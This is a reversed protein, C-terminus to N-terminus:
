GLDRYFATIDEALLDPEEHAAFHGGRPMPTYRTLHYSREAWERPPRVLDGPFVALATPVEVREVASRMGHAYEYYPRFSTSITETFWYLSTWTLVEEDSFRRSLIGDNDSWARWKEVLWALLGSPSDALPQALTLPRTMQQHEYGGETTFWVGESERFAREATTLTAEDLSPPGAVALLHVGVVAEPHTQGLLSSVGAGLDGGHAGYRAFGLRETMLQHWLEHTPLDPPVSPRQPSFPFGPLAPVIVTFADQARGGHASPAALRRAVPVLELVTSPWGHTLVLPLADGTHDGEADFRLYGVATGALDARHWPLANIAAEAARWDYSNVWVGVLRRLEAPDAGAEWATGSGLEPWSTAWRTRRLRERLDVVDAEPVELVSRGSLEPKSSELLSTTPTPGNADDSGAIRTM